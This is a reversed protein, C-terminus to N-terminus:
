LDKKVKQIVVMNDQIEKLSQKSVEILKNEHNNMM